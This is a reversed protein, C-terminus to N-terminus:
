HSGRAAEGRLEWSLKGVAEDWPGCSRGKVHATLGESHLDPSSDGSLFGLDGREYAKKTGQSYFPAM